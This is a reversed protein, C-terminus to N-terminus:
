SWSGHRCRTALCTARASTAATSSCSTSSSRRRSARPWRSCTSATRWSSSRSWSRRREATTHCIPWSRGTSRSRASRCSGCGSWRRTGRGFDDIAMQVGHARLLSLTHAARAPQVMVTSETVEIMMRSPDVGARGTADLLMEVITPGWLGPPLNFSVVLDAGQDSWERAQRCAGEIVRRTMPEILGSREALPVFQEPLVLRGDSDRWRVLTEAGVLRRSELEVIPQFHLEFEDREVARRLDGMMALRGRAKGPEIAAAENEILGKGIYMATDANRLLEDRDTADIPYISVGISLGVHVDTGAVLFPTELVSRVKNEIASVVELARPVITEGGDLELDPVLVLFEDGGQRGV